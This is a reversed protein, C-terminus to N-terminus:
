PWQYKAVVCVRVDVDDMSLFLIFQRKGPRSGDTRAWLIPELSKKLCSNKVVSTNSKFKNFTFCECCREFARKKTSSKFWNQTSNPALILVAGFFTKYHKTGIEGERSQNLRKPKKNVWLLYFEGQSSDHSISKPSATVCM